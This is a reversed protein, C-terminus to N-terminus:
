NIIQKQGPEPPADSQKEPKQIIEDAKEVKSIINKLM